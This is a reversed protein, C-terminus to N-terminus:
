SGYYLWTTWAYKIGSIVPLSQHPYVFNSPFVLAAGRQPKVKLDQRDFYTEGGEFGDNLYGVVSVDRLPLGRNAEALRSSMLINDIHRKYFEGPQYRLISCVDTHGFTLGYTQYLWQQILSVQGLLLDNTSGLLPDGELSVMSNSRVQAEVRDVEIGAPELRSVEAIDILHQCLSASLLETFLFIEPGLPQISPM